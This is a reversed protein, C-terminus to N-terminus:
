RLELARDYTARLTRQFRDDLEADANLASLGAQTTGNKSTVEDRLLQPDVGRERALAVAGGLTETVLQRAEEASFGLSQAAKSWTRLIEFAFGPGSGAIATIRDLEDESAAPVIHGTPKMMADVLRTQAEKVGPAAFVGSVGRGLFVPLNPMVRVVGAHPALDQLRACTVGAALSLLVGGEVLIGAYAPLVDAIMQPKIGIVLVDFEESALDEVSRAAKVGDPLSRSGSPSVATFAFGPIRHWQELLAGAMRGCGLLLVRASRGAPASDADSPSSPDAAPNGAPASDDAESLSM